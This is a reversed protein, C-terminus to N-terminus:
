FVLLHLSYDNLFDHMKMEIDKMFDDSELKKLEENILKKLM